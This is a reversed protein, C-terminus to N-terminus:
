REDKGEGHRTQEMEEGVKAVLPRHKLVVVLLKTGRDLADPRPLQVLIEKGFVRLLDAFDLRKLIEDLEASAIPGIQDEADGPHPDVPEPLPHEDDENEEEQEQLSPHQHTPENLNKPRG